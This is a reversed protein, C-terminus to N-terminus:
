ESARWADNPDSLCYAGVAKEFVANENEQLNDNQALQPAGGTMDVGSPLIPEM